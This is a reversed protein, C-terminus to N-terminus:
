PRFDPLTSTEISSFSEEELGTLHAAVEYIEDYEEPTLRSNFLCDQALLRFRHNLDAILRLLSRRKREFLSRRAPRYRSRVSSAGPSHEPPPNEQSPLLSPLSVARRLGDPRPAVVAPLPPAPVRLDCIPLSLRHISGRPARHIFPLRDDAFLFNPVASISPSQHSTFIFAICHCTRAFICLLVLRVWPISISLYHMKGSYTM